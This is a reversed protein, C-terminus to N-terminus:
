EEMRHQKCFELYTLYKIGTKKNVGLGRDVPRKCNDKSCREVYVDPQYNPM